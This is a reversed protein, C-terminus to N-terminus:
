TEITEALEQMLPLTKEENVRAERLLAIKLEDDLEKDSVKLLVGATESFLEALEEALETCAPFDKAIKRFYDAGMSRCEGWVSGNWWNGHEKGYGKKVANIWADYAALGCSYPPSTHNDPNETLDVAYLLSRQIAYSSELLGTKHFSYFCAHIEEEIEKWTGFTLRAPPFDCKWPQICCFGSDDFGSILQNDLNLVSCPNGAELEGRIIGELAAREEATSEGSFFGHEKMKIGMNELLSIFPQYKWCYPGSPCIAEHINILFAHGSMGYLTPTDFSLGFSDAVGRIVGMMTTNLPPQTIEM